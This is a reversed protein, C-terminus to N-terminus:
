DDADPAGASAALDQPRIKSVDFSQAKELMKGLTADFDSLESPKAKVFRLPNIRAVVFPKLYASTLGAKKLRDVVEAVADDLALVAESMEKRRALSRTIPEDFFSECRKLVSLYAGGSLRPRAEYCLGLTLYSPEELEFAWTKEPLKGMAPDESLGRAMRIVELSKDKLNHAKETNLALIRYAIEPDPVVLATISLVGLSKMAALRHMGNPTWYRGDKRVAVLPDLFQGVKPIVAALRDAHTKSLERQYPTPEVKDIPLAALVVWKGGFPDRYAALAAGGDDAIATLLETVAPPPPEGDPRGLVRGPLDKAGLGATQPAVKKKRAAM